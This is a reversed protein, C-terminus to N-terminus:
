SGLIVSATTTIIGAITPNELLKRWLKKAEPDGSKEIADELQQLTITQSLTNSNGAQLNTASVSGHFNITQSQLQQIQKKTDLAQVSLAAIYPANTGVELSSQLQWDLVEFFREKSGIKQTVIDGIDFPCENSDIPILLQNKSSMRQGSYIIKNFQFRDPYFFDDNDSM